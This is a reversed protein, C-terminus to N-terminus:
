QLYTEFALMCMWDVRGNNIDPEIRGPKLPMSLRSFMLQGSDRVGGNIDALIGSLQQWFWEGQNAYTGASSEPIALEIRCLVQVTGALNGGDWSLPLDELDLIILPPQHECDDDVGYEHIYALAASAAGSSTLTQWTTSESLMTKTNQLLSYVDLAAM